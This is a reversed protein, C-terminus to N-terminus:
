PVVQWCYYDLRVEVWPYFCKRGTKEFYEKPKFVIKYLGAVIEKHQLRAEDSGPPPLMNM